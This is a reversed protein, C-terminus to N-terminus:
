IRQENLLELKTIKWQGEVPKITLEAEYQNRRTHIHGWHGVEGSVNWRCITTFGAQDPLGTAKSELVEVEKVKVRAGGQNRLELARRTELYIGTLQDGSASRALVDYVDSEARYDFARYVNKLLGAVVTKADGDSVGSNSSLPDPMRVRAVPWMAAGLVILLGTFALARIRRSSKPRAIRFVGFPMLLVCFATVSPVSIKAPAAPPAISVLSRSRPHKLFNEWTLVPDDPTVYSPLPGAEDTAVAPVKSIRDNFMDWKMTARKPLENIPYAFIVGLTAETIPMDEPPDVVGTKRLSRRVFHIRDLTMEIPQGDVTVAHRKALFDAVKDKLAQQDAVPIVEKGALGLDVWEQLDKPRVIIEKRIEFTDIYLFGQMAAAYRRQLNRNRFRSYWPDKWDLDVTAVSLYRFDNVAIGRHYLVFGISAAALRRRPAITLTKPQSELKYVVEILIIPEADPPQNPLPDGTIEDRKIRRSPALRRIRGVLPRGDASLVWDKSFFEATRQDIPRPSNGLRTYIEDPMINAFAKLDRVGIEMKVLIEDREVFVEVITSATMARTVVVADARVEARCILLCAVLVLYLKTYRIIM